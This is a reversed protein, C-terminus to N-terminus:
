VRQDAFDLVECDDEFFGDEDGDGQRNGRRRRTTVVIQEADGYQMVREMASQPLAMHDDPGVLDEDNSAPLGLDLQISSINQGFTWATAPAPAPGPEAELGQFTEASMEDDEEEKQKRNRKGASKDELTSCALLVSSAEARAYEYLVVRRDTHFPQYPASSEIEAQPITADPGNQPAPQTRRPKLTLTNEAEMEAESLELYEDAVGLEVVQRVLPAVADDPLLPMKIDKYKNVRSIKKGPASSSVRTRCPFVRILGRGISSLSHSKRGRLWSICGASPLVCPPLSVRNEGTHRLQSIATGTKGLSHSISAAIVRGGQAASDRLTTGASPSVANSSGRRSRSVFPKAAQYAAGLAGSAISVASHSPEAVEAGARSAVKRRRRPPPWMFSSVPMDLLHITGRETVMALRDGLPESWAVDVIRAVTMRSFQAVQRVQPGITEHQSLTTQLPSSSTYHLRLLDWVTQVDGKTSAAFLALSSPSLSVFSCGLPTSFTALPHVTASAPLTEVDVISILGPDKAPAATTTGSAGHTPPFQSSEAAQSVRQNPWQNPSSSRAQQQQAHQQPPQSWYSNWAQLGQQGVWKMGSILEQTTERMLKNVVSDSIPLDVAASPTPLHPPAMSSVGPARGLIPVAINARLSVQSSPDSPCYAIWRGNLSLIPLQPSPRHAPPVTSSNRKDSEELVEPRNSRQVRTWIKGTCAYMHARRPESLQKYIWCEGTVGSSVAITGADAKVGFAGSPSPPQFLPSSFSVEMNIPLEPAQLLVDVLKKTKLSYVEVSTQYFQIPPAPRAPFGDPHAYSSRPSTTSSDLTAGAAGVKRNGEEATPRTPLVPGHVVVAVLPFVFSNHDNVTWPLIKAHHVGGRLGKLSSVLEIGKKSVSYVQLGGEYGALVVREARTPFGHNAPLKDFGLFFGRDGAKMGSQPTTAVDAADQAGYFHAQPQHPLPPHTPSAAQYQSYLSSRRYAAAASTPKPPTGALHFQNDSHYSLPRRHGHSPPSLSAPSPSASPRQGAVWGNHLRGADEYSSPQTPPSDSTLNILNGPSSAMVTKAWENTLNPISNPSASTSSLADLLPSAVLHNGHDSSLPRNIEPTDVRPSSAQSAPRSQYSAAATGGGNVHNGKSTGNSFKAAAQSTVVASIGGSEKGNKKDKRPM